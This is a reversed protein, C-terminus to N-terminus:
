GQGQEARQATLIDLAVRELAIQRDDDLMSYIQMLLGLRAGTEKHARREDEGRGTVTDAIDQMESVAKNIRYRWVKGRQEDENSIAAIQRELTLSAVQEFRTWPM